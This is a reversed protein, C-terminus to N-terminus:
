TQRFRNAHANQLRITLAHSQFAHYYTHPNSDAMQLKETM